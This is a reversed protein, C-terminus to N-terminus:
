NTKVLRYFRSASPGEASTDIDSLAVPLGNQPIQDATVRITKVVGWDAVGLDTCTQLQYTGAAAITYNLVPTVSIDNAEVMNLETGAVVSGNDEYVIGNVGNTVTVTSVITNTVVTGGGAPATAALTSLGGVTVETAGSADDDSFVGMSGVTTWTKAWNKDAPFAGVFRVPTLWADPVVLASAESVASARPDIAMAHSGISAPKTYPVLTRAKIPMNDSTEFSADTNWNDEATWGAYAMAGASVYPGKGDGVAAKVWKYKTTWASGGATVTDTLGGPIHWFTTGRICARVDDTLAGDGYFYEQGRDNHMANPMLLTSFREAASATIGNGAVTDSGTRNEILVALDDFDMVISNYIRPSSNDRVIIGMNRNADAAATGQSNNGIVTLNAWLSASLLNTSSNFNKEFGDMELGKDGAGSEIKSGGLDRQVGFLFQNKGRFGADSDFIDDGMGWGVLYKSAVTGGFWEFGDDQNNYVEVHHIKTGRGVGYMTLGNIEGGDKVVSGGYRIQVYSLEGSSDDDDTGGGLFTDSTAMGEVTWTAAGLNQGDNNVYAKGCLVVGGWVGHLDGIAGYDYSENLKESWVTGGTRYNWTREVSTGSTGNNQWPFHNDWEDTFIIPQEATGNAILKGGRSVILMGPRFETASGVVAASNKGRIITGPEITLTVGDEVIVIGDMLYYNDATWTTDATIRCFGATSSDVAAMQSVTVTTSPLAAFASGALLVLGLALTKLVQKTCNM